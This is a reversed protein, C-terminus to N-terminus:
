SSEEPIPCYLYLISGIDFLTRNPLASSYAPDRLTKALTYQYSSGELPCIVPQKKTNISCGNMTM